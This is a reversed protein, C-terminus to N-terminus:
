KKVEEITNIRIKEKAMLWYMKEIAADENDAEVELKILTTYTPM